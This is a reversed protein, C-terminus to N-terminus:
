LFYEFIGATNGNITSFLVSITEAHLGTKTLKIEAVGSGEFVTCSMQEFQITVVAYHLANCMACSKHLGHLRKVSVMMM